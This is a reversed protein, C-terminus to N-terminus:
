DIFIPEIGPPIDLDFIAPNVYQTIQTDSYRIRTNLKRPKGTIIIIKGPISAGRIKHHDELRVMYSIKGENDLVEIRVLNRNPNVWLSQIKKGQTMVDIRYLEGEVQGRLTTNQEKIHPPTGVLISIIDEARLNTPFFMALNKRTAHGVYFKGEKPLFVKLYNKSISLFLDPPGIIPMAEVRLFSPRKAILAVKMSHKGKPTDVAIHAIAKLTNRLNDTRSINKLVDEPPLIHGKFPATVKKPTCGGFAIFLFLFLITLIYKKM